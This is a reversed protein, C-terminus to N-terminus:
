NNDSTACSEDFRAATSALISAMGAIILGLGDLFRSDHSLFMERGAAHALPFQERDVRADRVTLDYKPDAEGPAPQTAQEEIVFGITYSYLSTLAVVAQRLTFGSDVLTRLNKEMAGYLAADTLYTGSFMRAGDRYALLTGRLGRGLQICWDQWNQVADLAPRQQVTERMVQTAMEDLLDQKNRFHWYIAPAQVGLRAALRRLTLKELGAENLAAFAQQLISQRDLPM